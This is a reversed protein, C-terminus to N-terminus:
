MPDYLRAVARLQDIIPLATQVFADGNRIEATPFGGITIACHPTGDSSEIAFSVGVNGLNYDELSLAYGRARITSVEGLIEKRTTLTRDTFRQLPSNRRLYAEIEEDSLSALIARSPTSAHLPFHQGLKTRSILVGQGEVGDIVVQGDGARVSLQVTQGTALHLRELFPRAVTRIDPLPFNPNQFELVRYSLQYRRGSDDRMLFGQEVLTALARYIMNKTMGLSKSLETVGFDPKEFVFKALVDFIRTTAVNYARTDVEPEEVVTPAVAELFSTVARRM